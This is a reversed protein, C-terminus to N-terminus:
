CCHKGKAYLWAAAGGIWVFVTLALSAMACALPLLDGWGRLLLCGFLLVLAYLAFVGLSVGGHGKGHLLRSIAFLYLALKLTVATGWLLLQVWELRNFISIAGCSAATHLPMSRANAAAGFFLELLLHIAVDFGVAALPLSWRTGTNKRGSKQWLAPLLYEPYFHLQGIVAEQLSAARLPVNQLNELRLRPLVSFLLLVGGVVLLWLVVRGTQSIAAARRLYLVPLLLLMWLLPLTLTDPYVAQLLTNMRLIERVACLALFVVFLVAFFPNECRQWCLAFLWVLLALLPVTLVTAFFGARAGYAAGTRLLSDVFVGTVLAAWFPGVDTATTPM